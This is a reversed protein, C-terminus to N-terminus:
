STALGSIMGHYAINGYDISLQAYIHEYQGAALQATPEVLIVSGKVPAAVPRIRALDLFVLDDDAIIPNFLVRCRGALPILLTEMIVGGEFSAPVAGGYLDTLAQYQFAGCTIVPDVLEAGAARMRAVETGILTKSLAVSGAATESGGEIATVVGGMTAATGANTWAGATGNLASYEYDSMLQRLHAERQVEISDINALPEGAASIGSINGNLTSSAYSKVLRPHFIQVQNDTQSGAYSTNTGAAISADESEGDQAPADGTLSTLMPFNKATVFRYGNRLVAASMVPSVGFKQGIFAAEGWYDV